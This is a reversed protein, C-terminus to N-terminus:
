GPKRAIISASELAGQWRESRWPEAAVVTVAEFGAARIRGLYVERPETGALCSVWDDLSEDASAPGEDTRVLDSIMLRGGPRLVRFAEAFM